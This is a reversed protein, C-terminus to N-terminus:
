DVGVQKFLEGDTPLTSNTEQDRARKVADLDVKGGWGFSSFEVQHYTSAIRHLRQGLEGNAITLVRGGEPVASSLVTENAATDSDIIPIVCYQPGNLGALDLPAQSVFEIPKEAHEGRLGDELSLAADLARRDVGVPGGGLSRIAGGGSM